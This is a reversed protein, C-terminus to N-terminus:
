HIVKMVVSSQFLFETKQVTTSGSRQKPHIRSSADCLKLLQAIGVTQVVNSFILFLVSFPEEALTYTHRVMILFVFLKVFYFWQFVQMQM